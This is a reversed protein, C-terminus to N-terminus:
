EAKYVVDGNIIIEKIMRTDILITEYQITDYPKELYILRLDNEVKGVAIGGGGSGGRSEFCYIMGNKMVVRSNDTDVEEFCNM